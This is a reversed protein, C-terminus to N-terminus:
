PAVSLGPQVKGLAPMVEAALRRINAQIVADPLYGFNVWCMLHRAGLQAFPTLREILEDATGIMLWTKLYQARREDLDTTSLRDIGSNALASVRVITDVYPGITERWDEGPQLVYVQRLMGTFRWAREIEEAGLGSEALGERYHVIQKAVWEEGFPAILWSYGHRGVERITDPTLSAWAIPPRPLQVPPPIIRGRVEGHWFEGDYRFGTPPAAWAQEAIRAMEHLMEHRVLRDLGYGDFEVAPSGPGLGVVLRGQSMWDLVNCATVFRLPHYLPGIAMSFGIRMRKTRQAVAMGFMLPDTYTNYGSFHHETLWVDDFGLTEALEVQDLVEGMVRHDHEPGPTQPNLYIGLRM